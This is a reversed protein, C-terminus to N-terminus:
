LLNVTTLVHMYKPDMVPLPAAFTYNVGGQPFGLKTIFRHKTKKRKYKCYLGKLGLM